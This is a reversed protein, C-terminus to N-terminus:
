RAIPAGAAADRGMPSDYIGARDCAAIGKEEGTRAIRPRARDPRGQLIIPRTAAM